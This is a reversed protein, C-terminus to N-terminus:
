GGSEEGYRGGWNLKSRLVQFFDKSPSRVLMVRRSSKAVRVVDGEELEVGEQGDLTLYIDGNKFELHIEVRASDSTYRWHPARTM